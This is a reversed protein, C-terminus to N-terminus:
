ECHPGSDRSSCWGCGGFATSNMDHISRCSSPLTLALRAKYQGCSRVWSAGTTFIEMARHSEPDHLRAAVTMPPSEADPAMMAPDRVPLSHPTDICFSHDLGGISTNM